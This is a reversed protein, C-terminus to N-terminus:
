QVGAAMEFISLMRCIGHKCSLESDYFRRGNAGLNSRQESSMSYLHWVADAISTPDEPECVLGAGTNRVMEAAEGRVAMLIPREAAMYAQTKQPIGILGLRDGKLGMKHKQVWM